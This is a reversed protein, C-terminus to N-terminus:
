ACLHVVPVLRRQPDVDRQGDHEGDRVIRFRDDLSAAGRRDCEDVIETREVGAEM